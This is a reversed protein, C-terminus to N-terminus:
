VQVGKPVEHFAHVAAAMRQGTERFDDRLSWSLYKGRKIIKSRKLPIFIDESTSILGKKQQFSRFLSAFNNAYAREWQTDGFDNIVLGGLHANGSSTQEQVIASLTDVAPYIDQQSFMIPLFVVDAARIGERVSHQEPGTDVLIVYSDSLDLSVLLDRLIGIRCQILEQNLTEKSPLLYIHGGNHNWLQNNELATPILAEAFADQPSLHDSALRMLEVISLDEEQFPQDYFVSTIGCSADFDVVVVHKGEVEAFYRALLSTCVTKGVGGKRSTITVILARKAM